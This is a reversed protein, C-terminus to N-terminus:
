LGPKDKVYNGNSHERYGICELYRGEVSFYQCQKLYESQETKFYKVLDSFDNETQAKKLSTVYRSRNKDHIIFPCINNALCERFIIIRGTRGNGDCSQVYTLTKKLTKM